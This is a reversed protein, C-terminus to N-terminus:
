MEGNNLIEFDADSIKSETKQQSIYELARMRKDNNPVREAAHMHLSSFIDRLLEDDKRAYDDRHFLFSGLSEAKIDHKRAAEVCSQIEQEPLSEKESIFDICQIVLDRAEPLTAIDKLELMGDKFM